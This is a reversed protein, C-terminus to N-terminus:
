RSRAPADISPTDLRVRFDEAMRALQAVRSGARGRALPAVLAPDIGLTELMAQMTGVRGRMFVRASHRLDLRRKPLEVGATGLLGLAHPGWSCVIDDDRVFARLRDVLEDRSVGSMLTEKTLDVHVPTSPALPNCPHVVVDLTEGSYPRHAVLHVLEERHETRLEKSRYPWANAEATVCVIHERAESLAAPIRPRPPTMPGKAYRVRAGRVTKAFTVQKDIMARFPVLLKQLKEPEGELAGLVHVLAELTSVYAADPERRIRYESPTPARFAYRPLKALEPNVRVLKRTQSWTGDVVVLTIPGKPPHTLVDVAGESPYLLAAPREPAELARRLATSARFDVGVHLESNPLCLSAMRATGIAMGEERPHQLLVVRTTTNVSTLHECYCVRIPRQCRVCAQRPEFDLSLSRKM